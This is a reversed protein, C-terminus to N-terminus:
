IINNPINNSNGNLFLLAKIFEIVTDLVNKKIEPSNRTNPINTMFNKKVFFILVYKLIELISMRSNVNNLKMTIFLYKIWGSLPNEM